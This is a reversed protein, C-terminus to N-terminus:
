HGRHKELRKALKKRRVEAAHAQKTERRRQKKIVLNQQHALKLVVESRHNNGHKQVLQRAQRQRKKSSQQEQGVVPVLSNSDIWRLACWQQMILTQIQNLTPEQTGFTVKAVQYHGKIVREFVGRFFSQDYFVTLQSQTAM